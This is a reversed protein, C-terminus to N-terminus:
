LHRRQNTRLDFSTRSSQCPGLALITRRHSQTQTVDGLHIWDPSGNLRALGQVLKPSENRSLLGHAPHACVQRRPNLIPSHFGSEAIETASSVADADVSWHRSRVDYGLSPHASLGRSSMRLQRQLLIRLNLPPLPPSSPPGAMRVEKRLYTSHLCRGYEM